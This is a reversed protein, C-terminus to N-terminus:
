KATEKTYGPMPSKSAHFEYIVSKSVTYLSEDSPFKLMKKFLQSIIM